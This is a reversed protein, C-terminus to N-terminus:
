ESIDAIATQEIDEYHYPLRSDAQLLTNTDRELILQSEYSRLAIFIIYM